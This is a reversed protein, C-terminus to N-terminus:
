EDLRNELFLLHELDVILGLGCDDLVRAAQSVPPKWLDVDVGKGQGNVARYVM